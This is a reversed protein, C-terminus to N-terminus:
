WEKRVSKIVAVMGAVLLSIGGLGAIFSWDVPESRVALEFETQEEVIQITGLYKGEQDFTYKAVYVGPATEIAAVSVSDVETNEAEDHHDDAVAEDHHDDAAAEDHHDDAAAEDHHDDAAAEDHHDDVAAEDDHEDSGHNHGMDMRALLLTVILGEVRSGDHSVIFTLEAEEGALPFRPSSALTVEFEGAGHASHEEHEHEGNALAVGTGLTIGLAM